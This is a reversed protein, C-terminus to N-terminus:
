MDFGTEPYTVFTKERHAEIKALINHRDIIIYNNGWVKPIEEIFEVAEDTTKFTDLIWRMAVNVMVGPGKNTFSTTAASLALGAENIGGYRSLLPWLFTFGYSALKGKPQVTCITLYKSEEEVWEHNRALLARGSKTHEGTIAFVLCSPKLRYPTLEFAVLTEYDVNCTEAMGRLEDLLGPCYMQVAEEYPKAREINDKSFTPPFGHKKEKILHEGNTRGIEYYTGQSRLEYM